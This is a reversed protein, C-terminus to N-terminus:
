TVVIILLVILGGKLCGLGRRKPVPPTMPEAVTM